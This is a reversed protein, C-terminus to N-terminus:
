CLSCNTQARHAEASHMTVVVGASNVKNLLVGKGAEEKPVHDATRLFLGDRMTPWHLLHLTISLMQIVLAPFNNELIHFQIKFAVVDEDGTFKKINM